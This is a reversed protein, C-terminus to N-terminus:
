RAPRLLSRLAVAPDALADISVPVRQDILRRAARVTMADDISAAGELLGRHVLFVTPHEGGDRVVLEGPGSLRGAAELHVGHRDSWFWSTGRAPAERGLVAHAVAQGDFQAAEWHEEPRHLTGDPDRRRAVDGAAYIGDVSTRFEADVLVGRDTDLGASQAIEINPVIGVGVVVLDAAIREGSVLVVELAEGAREFAATLGQRVTIGRAEHMGHLHTAMHAGVVAVLPVEVPDILSVRAGATCLASALEAGILGAGVVAVRSGEVVAHRIALADAYTRLVHVGPLDGGPIELSRARAGTSIIVTDADLVSGDDLTVRLSEPDLATARRGLRTELSREALAQESAFSLDDLEFAEDFLHKSLPPRDYLAPEPDVVTISGQHGLARLTNAASYGALGGGVVVVRGADRATM